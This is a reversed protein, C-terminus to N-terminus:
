VEMYLLKNHYTNKFDIGKLIVFNSNVDGFRLETGKDKLARVMSGSNMFLIMFRKTEDPEIDKWYQDTDELFIKLNDKLITKLTDEAIFRCLDDYMKHKNEYFRKQEPDKYDFYIDEIEKGDSTTCLQPLYYKRFKEFSVFCFLALPALNKMKYFLEEYNLDLMWDFDRILVETAAKIKSYDDKNEIIENVLADYRGKYDNLVESESALGEAYKRHIENSEKEYEIIALSEKVVNEDCEVNLIGSIQVILDEDTTSQLNNIKGLEDVYGHVNLWRALLGNKYYDLVDQICFHERLDDLTRISANDCKLNFKITKAM